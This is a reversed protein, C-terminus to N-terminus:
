HGPPLTAEAQTPNGLLSYITALELYARDNTPENEIAKEFQAAAEKYRGTGRYVRGLCVRAAAQANSLNVAQECDQRSAEVWRTEQTNEYNQWYADGRGAYALAYKSLRWRVPSLASQM